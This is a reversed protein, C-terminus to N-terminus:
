YAAYNLGLGLVAALFAPLRIVSSLGYYIVFLQLLVPTGRMIEVYAGLVTRLVVHGYVRGSAVLIGTVVALGMALFSLVLTVVAARGLAPAYAALSAIGRTAGPGTARTAVDTAVAATPESTTAGATAGDTARAFYRAEVDNWVDWRRFTQELSGDRMRARLISNV